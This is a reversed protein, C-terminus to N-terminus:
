GLLEALQAVSGAYYSLDVAGGIGPVRGAQTFQWLTYEYSAKPGYEALWLHEGWPAHPMNALFNPNSYLGTKVHTALEEALAHTANATAQWDGGDELESDVWVFNVHDLHAEILAVQQAVPITPHVFHYGAVIMGADKANKIDGLAFPNVYSQAGGGETLKVIVASRGSNRVKHWDIPHPNNSSVDVVQTAM